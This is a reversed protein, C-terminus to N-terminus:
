FDVGRGNRRMITGLIFQAKARKDVKLVEDKM